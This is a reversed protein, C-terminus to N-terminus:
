FFLVVLVLLIFSIILYNLTFKKLIFNMFISKMFGLVILNLLIDVILFSVKILKIGKPLGNFFDQKGKPVIELNECIYNSLDILQNQFICWILIKIFLISFVIVFKLYIPKM